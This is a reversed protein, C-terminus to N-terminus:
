HKVARQVDEPVDDPPIVFDTLKLTVTDGKSKAEVGLAALEFFHIDGQEVARKDMVDRPIRKFTMRVNAAEAQQRAVENLEFAFDWGLVDIGNTKPAEKGTGLSKKFEIAINKVDGSTVPADVAGVHVYRGNKVGHLWTRGHLPQAHYLKLIFEVYAAHRAAAEAPTEAQERGFAGVSWLQREYKGLNQVIFPKVDPIGLLRKRTTHIAFRGLDCALWRRGLKEAVAVTTGSGCFCDLVLDGENCALNLVESLFTENKETPYKYAASYIPTGSWVTDAMRREAPERWYQPKGDDPSPRIFELCGGTDRWYEALSRGSRERLFRKYNEGAVLARERKWVWQGSPPTIGFLEYRMTPRDATSWFHHWHGEPNGTDHKQVWYPRFRTERSKSYWLLVDHRIQLRQISCFQQQLNKVARGPLIISNRFNDPGFVEDLIVRVYDAVQPGIHVMVSGTEALLEHLFVATEYFWQM